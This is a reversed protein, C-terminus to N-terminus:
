FNEGIYRLENEVEQGTRDPLKLVQTEISTSKNRRIKGRPAEDISERRPGCIISRDIKPKQYFSFLSTTQKDDGGQQTKVNVLGEHTTGKV